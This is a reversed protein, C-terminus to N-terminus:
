VTHDRGCPCIIGKEAMHGCSARFFTTQRANYMDNKDRRLLAILRLIVKPEIAIRNGPNSPHSYRLIHGDISWNDPDGYILQDAEVLKHLPNLEEEWQKADEDTLDVYEKTAGAIKADLEEAIKAAFKPYKDKIGLITEKIDSVMRVASDLSRETEM